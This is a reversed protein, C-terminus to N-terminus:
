PIRHNVFFNLLIKKFTPRIFAQRISHPLDNWLYTVVIYFSYRLYDTKFEPVELNLPSIRRNDLRDCERFNFKNFLYEPVKTRLVTALLCITLYDRRTTFSM